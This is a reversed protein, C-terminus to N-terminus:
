IISRMAQYKESRRSRVYHAQSSSSRIPNGLVPASLYLSGHENHIKALKTSLSPSITSTGIHIKNPKLGSLIGEESTVVDLLAHDDSLSTM